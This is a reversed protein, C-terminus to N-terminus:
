LYRRSRGVPAVHRGDYQAHITAYALVCDPHDRQAKEFAVQAELRSRHASLTIWHGATYRQVVYSEM